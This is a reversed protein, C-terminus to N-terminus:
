FFNPRPYHTLFGSTQPTKSPPKPSHPACGHNKQPSNTTSQTTFTTLKITSKGRQFFHWKKLIYKEDHKSRLFAAHSTGNDASPYHERAAPERPAVPRLLTESPSASHRKCM